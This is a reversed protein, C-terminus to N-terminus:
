RKLIGIRTAETHVKSFASNCMLLLDHLMPLFCNERSIIPIRHALKGMIEELEAIKVEVNDFSLKLNDNFEKDRILNDPQKLRKTERLM